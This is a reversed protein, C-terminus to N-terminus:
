RISFNSCAQTTYPRQKKFNQALATNVIATMKLESKIGYTHMKKVEYNRMITLILDGEM